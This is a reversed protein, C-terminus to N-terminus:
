LYTPQKKQQEVELVMVKVGSQGVGSRKSLEPITDHACGM